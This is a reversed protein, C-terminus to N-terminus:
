IVSWNKTDSTIIRVNVQAIAKNSDIILASINSSDIHM